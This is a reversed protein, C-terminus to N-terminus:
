VALEAVTGSTAISWSLGTSWSVPLPMGDLDKTGGDTLATSWRIIKVARDDRVM